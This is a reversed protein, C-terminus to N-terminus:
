ILIRMIVRCIVEVIADLAYPFLVSLVLDRKKKRRLKEDRTQLRLNWYRGDKVNVSSFLPFIM